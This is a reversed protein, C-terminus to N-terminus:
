KNKAMSIYVLVFYLPTVVFVILIILIKFLVIFSFISAIISGAVAFIFFPIILLTQLSTFFSRRHSPSLLKRALLSQAVGLISSGIVTLSVAVIITIFYPNFVLALPTMALLLSGFVFLPALGTKNTLLKIISPGLFSAFIAITFILAVNFFGGLFQNEFLKYIYYGYFSAGLAEIVTILLAGYFLFHAYTNSFFLKQQARLEHFYKLFFLKILIKRKSVQRVPIRSLIFGSLIFAIAAVEFSIFYGSLPITYGFLIISSGAESFRELLFGSFLFALATIVLGHHAIKRLFWSRREDKIGDNLLRSYLEGYTVVSTSGVLLSFIFLATSDLRIALLLGFFSFGFIIGTISIFKNSITQESSLERFVSSFLDNLVSRLAYILGVLFASAGTLFFFITIFQHAAFGYGIRDFIEKLTFQKNLFAYTKRDTEMRRQPREEDLDDEFFNLPNANEEVPDFSDDIAFDELTQREISSDEKKHLVTM